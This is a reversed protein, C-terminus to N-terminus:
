LSRPPLDMVSGDYTLEVIITPSTLTPAPLAVTSEGPRMEQARAAEVFGRVIDQHAASRMSNFANARSDFLAFGDHHRATLVMYKMGVQRAVRVWEEPAKPDPTFQDALKVYERQPIRESFRAWEGRGAVSYLGFHIFM